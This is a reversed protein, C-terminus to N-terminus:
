DNFVDVIECDKLYMNKDGDLHIIQPKNGGKSSDWQIIGKELADKSIEKITKLDPLSKIDYTLVWGKEKNKM